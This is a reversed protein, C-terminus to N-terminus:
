DESKHIGPSGELIYQDLSHFGSYWGTAAIETRNTHM